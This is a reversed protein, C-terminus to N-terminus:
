KTAAAVNFSGIFGSGAMGPKCLVRHPGAQLTVSLPRHSGTTVNEIEALVGDDGDLIYLESIKSASNRFDFTVPGAAVTPLDLTCASDTGTVVVTAASKTTTPGAFAVVAVLAGLVAVGGAARSVVSDFRKLPSVYGPEHHAVPRLFLVMVPILYSFYAVVELWSPEPSFNFIGKLLSGYWSSPPIQEHIDWALTNLGPLIGAEQLDHFGYALVGAAVLILAGGTYRFFKALNLRVTGRYFLFGIVVASALGLVAGILPESGGGNAQLTPWLFLATELGERGVSIFAMIAVATTGMAVAEDLRGQLEGKLTHAQSRMWFVMWTVFMVAVISLTGGFGEQAEQSMSSSGFTLLAGFALSLSIATAVGIWVASLRDRAGSKVLYAVLISVVLSAELGERLGILFNQLM